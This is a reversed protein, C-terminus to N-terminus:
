GPGSALRRPGAGSEFVHAPIHTSSAIRYRRGEDTFSLKVIAIPQVRSVRTQSMAIPRSNGVFYTFTAVYVVHHRFISTMMM